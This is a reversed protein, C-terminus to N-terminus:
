SASCPGCAGPCELGATSEALRAYFRRYWTKILLEEERDVHCFEFLTIPPAEKV